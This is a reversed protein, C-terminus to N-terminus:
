VGRRAGGMKGGGLRQVHQARVGLAHGPDSFSDVWGSSHGKREVDGRGVKLCLSRHGDVGGWESSAGPLTGPGWSAEPSTRAGLRSVTRWAPNWVNEHLLVYVGRLM